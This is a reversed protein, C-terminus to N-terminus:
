RVHRVTIYKTHHDYEFVKGHYHIEVVNFRDGFSAHLANTVRRAMIQLNDDEGLFPSVMLTRKVTFNIALQKPKKSKGDDFSVIVQQYEDDVPEKKSSLRVKLGPCITIHKYIPLDDQKTM